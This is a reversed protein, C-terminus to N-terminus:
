PSPRTPYNQAQAGTAALGAVRCLWYLKKM